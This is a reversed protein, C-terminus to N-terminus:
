DRPRFSVKSPGEKGTKSQGGRKGDKMTVILGTGVGGDLDNPPSSDPGAEGVIEGEDDPPPTALEERCFWSSGRDFTM